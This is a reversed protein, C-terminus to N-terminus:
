LLKGVETVLQQVGLVVFLLASLGMVTNSLPRNRWARPTRDTNLLVLLTIALFPMFLAGLVGYAIILGIPQDLFLLGIPPITLWVIFARYYSGGLRRRPDEVDLGRVTGLFDAFMLSVGNWVGLISSFSTAFFGLLFFWTMFAGYREGLVDALQVLGGEGDALAIDASYLLEAGVVLMSLVFIGSMVYAVSNDIRMVKMWRPAVWGKERLWYGYAALTITGGVGGAISLAVVLGGEPITPVLGTLLAPVNPVTVIAAGVVTVFMLGVFVAIIKEFASYRGFWVVVAGVLGCVIAFVKLDVGPFLAALPLASSSMAAAGYVLGWILIYSGFYWTTWRGVTRWGEFITKGTALSYRGAGEVLFIKIIVGLVAAWLLAYGFRSGAVLTAVLDGAGIGTAAVVLGPGVIRWRKASEQTERVDGRTDLDTM